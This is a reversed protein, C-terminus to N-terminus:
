LKSTYLQEILRLSSRIKELDVQDLLNQRQGAAHAAAIAIVHNAFEPGIAQASRRGATGLEGKEYVNLKSGHHVLGPKRPSM